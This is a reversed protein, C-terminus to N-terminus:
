FIRKNKFGHSNEDPPDCLLDTPFRISLYCKRDTAKCIDYFDFTEMDHLYDKLSSDIYSENLFNMSCIDFDNLKLNNLLDETKKCPRQMTKDLRYRFKNDSDLYGRDVKHANNISQM